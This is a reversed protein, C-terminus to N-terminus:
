PTYGSPGCENLNGGNNSSSQIYIAPVLGRNILLVRNAEAMKQAISNKNTEQESYRRSLYRPIFPAHSFHSWSGFLKSTVSTCCNCLKLAIPSRSRLGRLEKLGRLKIHPDNNGIEGGAARRAASVGLFHEIRAFYEGTQLRDVDIRGLLGTNVVYLCRLVAM